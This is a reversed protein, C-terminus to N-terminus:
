GNKHERFIRANGGAALLRFFSYACSM